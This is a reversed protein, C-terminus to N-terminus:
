GLVRVGLPDGAVVVRVTLSPVSALPRPRLDAPIAPTRPSVEPPLRALLEDGPKRKGNLAGNMGISPASIIRRAVTHRRLFDIVRPRQCTEQASTRNAVMAVKMPPQLPLEPPLV